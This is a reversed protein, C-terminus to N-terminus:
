CATRVEVHSASRICARYDPDSDDEVSTTQWLVWSQSPDMRWLGDHNARASDAPEKREGNALPTGTVFTSMNYTGISNNGHFFSWVGNQDDDFVRFNPFSGASLTSHTTCNVVGDIFRFKFVTPAGSTAGCGALFNTPDEFWGIEVFRTQPSNRNGISAVRVCEVSSNFVETGPEAVRTGRSNSGPRTLVHLIEPSPCGGAFASPMQVALIAASALLSGIVAWSVFWARQRATNGEVGARGGESTKPLSLRWERSQEQTGCSPLGRSRSLDPV